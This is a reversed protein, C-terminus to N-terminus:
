VSGKTREYAGQNFDRVYFVKPETGLDEKLRWSHFKGLIRNV